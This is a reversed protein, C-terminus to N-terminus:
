GPPAAGLRRGPSGPPERIRDQGRIPAPSRDQSVGSPPSDPGPAPAAGRRDNRHVDIPAAATSSAQVQYGLAGGTAASVVLLGAVLIRPIRRATTRAPHSSTM